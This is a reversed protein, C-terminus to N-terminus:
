EIILLLEESFSLIGIIFSLDIPNVLHYFAPNSFKGPLGHM